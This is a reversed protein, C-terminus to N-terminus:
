VLETQRQQAQRQRNVARRMNLRTDASAVGAAGNSAGDIRLEPIQIHIKAADSRMSDCILDLVPALDVKFGCFLGIASEVLFGLGCAPVPLNDLVLM